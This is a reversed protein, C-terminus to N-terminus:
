SKEMTISSLIAKIRIDTIQMSLIEGPRLSTFLMEAGSFLFLLCLGVHQPLPLSRTDM